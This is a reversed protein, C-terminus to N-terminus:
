IWYEPSRLSSHLLLVDVIQSLQDVEELGMLYGLKVKIPAIQLNPELKVLQLRPGRGAEAIQGTQQSSSRYGRRRCMGPCGRGARDSGRRGGISVRTQVNHLRRNDAGEVARGRGAGSREDRGAVANLFPLDDANDLGHLQHVLDLSVGGAFYDFAQDGVALGYFEAM